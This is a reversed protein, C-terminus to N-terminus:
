LNYKKSILYTEIEEKTLAKTRSEYICYKDQWTKNLRNMRNLAQELSTFYSRSLVDKDDPTSVYYRIINETSNFFKIREEIEPTYNALDFEISEFKKIKM